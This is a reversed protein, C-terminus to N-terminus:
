FLIEVGGRSFSNRQTSLIITLWSHKDGNVLGKIM